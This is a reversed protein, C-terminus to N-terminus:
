WVGSVAVGHVWMHFTWTWEHLLEQSLEIELRGVSSSEVQM